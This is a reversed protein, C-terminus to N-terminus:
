ALLDVFDFVMDGSNFSRSCRNSWNTHVSTPDVFVRLQGVLLLAFADYAELLAASDYAPGNITMDADILPFKLQQLMVPADEGAAGAVWVRYTVSTAIVDQNPITIAM